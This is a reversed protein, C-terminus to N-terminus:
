KRCVCVLVYVTSICAIEYSGLMLIILYLIISCLFYYVNNYYVIYTLLLLCYITIYFEILFM